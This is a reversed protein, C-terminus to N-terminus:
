KYIQALNLYDILNAAYKLESTIKAFQEKYDGLNLAFLDRNSSIGVLIMNEYFAFYAEDKGFANVFESIKEILNPNLIVRAEIEDNTFVEYKENFKPSELETKNLNFFSEKLRKPVVITRSKIKKDNNMELWAGAFASVIIYKEYKKVLKLDEDLTKVTLTMCILPQNM